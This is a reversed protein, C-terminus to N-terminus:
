MHSFGLERLVGAGAGLAEVRVRIPDHIGCLM